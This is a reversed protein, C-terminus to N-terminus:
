LALYAKITDAAPTGYIDSNAAFAKGLAISTNTGAQNPNGFNFLASALGTATTSYAVGDIIVRVTTANVYFELLHWGVVPAALPMPSISDTSAYHLGQPFSSNSGDRYIIRGPPPGFINQFDGTEVRLYFNCIMTAPTGAGLPWAPGNLRSTAADFTIAPKGGITAKNVSAINPTLTATGYSPPLSAVAGDALTSPEWLGVLGSVGNIVDAFSPVTPLTAGAYFSPNEVKVNLPM